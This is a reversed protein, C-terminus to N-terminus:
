KKNKKCIKPNNIIKDNGTENVEEKTLAVHFCISVLCLITFLNLKIM